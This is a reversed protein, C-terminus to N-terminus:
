LLRLVRPSLGGVTALQQRDSGRGGPPTPGLGYAPHALVEFATRKANTTVENLERFSSTLQETVRDRYEDKDLARPPDIVVAQLSNELKAVAGEILQLSWAVQGYLESVRNRGNPSSLYGRDSTVLSPFIGLGPKGGPDDAGLGPKGGPDDAGLGPKGGPDDAGLGPKGGPDDAGLGLSAHTMVRKATREVNAVAGELRALSDALSKLPATDGPTEDSAGAASSGPAVGHPLEAYQVQRPGAALRLFPPCFRAAITSGTPSTSTLLEGARIGDLAAMVKEKVQVVTKDLKLFSQHIGVMLQAVGTRDERGTTGTANVFEAVAKNIPDLLVKLDKYAFDAWGTAKALGLKAYDESSLDLRMLDAAGTVSPAFIGLGHLGELEPSAEHKLVFGHEQKLFDGLEGAAATVANAPDASGISNLKECLDALDILPRVEGHATELFADAIAGRPGDPDIAKKLATTLQKLPKEIEKAKGLDLLTLSVNQPEVAENFSTMFDDVIQEGFEQPETTPKDAIRRLISEYPWGAFPMTIEPAVLFDAADQLEFAAEAYSMACANAGLIDVATRGDPRRKLATALERLTLPDGHDRGFGLGYSHGWLVLLYKKAPYKERCWTVFANLVEPDGSNRPNGSNQRSVINNTGPLGICFDSHGERVRYREAYGPWQRDIQVLVNVHDTTGVRELERLDRIAARETQEDKSAAMYLMVTWDKEAPKQGETTNM